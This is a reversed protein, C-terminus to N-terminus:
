RSLLHIRAHDADGRQTQANIFALSSIMAISDNVTALSTEYAFLNEDELEPLLHLISFTLYIYFWIRPQSYAVWSIGLSRFAQYNM